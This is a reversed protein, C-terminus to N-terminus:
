SSADLFNSVTQSPSSLPRVPRSLQRTFTMVRYESEQTKTDENIQDLLKAFMDLLPSLIGPVAPDALEPISAATQIAKLL